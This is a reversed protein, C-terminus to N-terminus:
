DLGPCEDLLRTQWDIENPRTAFGAFCLDVEDPLELGCSHEGPQQHSVLLKDADADRVDTLEEVFVDVAGFYKLLRVADVSRAIASLARITFHIGAHDPLEFGPYNEPLM